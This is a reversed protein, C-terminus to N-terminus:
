YKFRLGFTKYTWYILVFQLSVRLAATIFKINLSIWCDQLMQIHVPLFAILMIIILWAAKKQHKKILLLIGLIIEIVGTAYVFFLHFPIYRPMIKLYFGPNAFHYLGAVIYLLSMLIVSIKKM